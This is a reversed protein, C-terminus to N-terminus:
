DYYVYYLSYTFAIPAEDEHVEAAFTIPQDPEAFGFYSAMKRLLSPGKQLNRLRDEDTAM